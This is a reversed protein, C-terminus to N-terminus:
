RRPFKCICPLTSCLDCNRQFPRGSPSFPPGPLRFDMDPVSSGATGFDDLSFAGPSLYMSESFFDQGNGEFSLQPFTESVTQNVAAMASNESGRTMFSIAKSPGLLRQLRSECDHSCKIKKQQVEAKIQSMLYESSFIGQVSGHDLLQHLLLCLKSTFGLSKSLMCSGTSCFHIETANTGRRLHQVIHDKRHADYIKQTNKCCGCHWKKNDSHILKHRELDKPRSFGDQDNCGDYDCRFRTLKAPPERLGRM